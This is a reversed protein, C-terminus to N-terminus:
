GKMLRLPEAFDALPLPLILYGEIRGIDSDYEAFILAFRDPSDPNSTFVGTTADISGSGDLGLSWRAQVESKVRARLQIQGAPLGTDPDPKLTLLVDHRVVLVHAHRPLLAGAGAVSVVDLVFATDTTKSHATYQCHHGDPRLTGADPGPKVLSWSLSGATLGGAALEVTDGPHCTQILPNIALRASLVTVLACSKFGGSGTATVRVRLYGDKVPIDALAPATYIGWADISGASADAKPSVTEVAWSVTGGGASFQRQQGAFLLLEMPSVIFATSAPNVRGFAGVDHPAYLDTDVITQGFSLEICEQIFGDVPVIATALKHLAQRIRPEIDTARGAFYAALAPLVTDVWADIDVGSDQGAAGRTGLPEADVQLDFEVPGIALGGDETEVMTYLANLSVSYRHTISFPPKANNDFVCNTASDAKTNWSVRVTRDAQREIVLGSAPSAVLDMANSLVSAWITDGGAGVPLRAGKQEVRIGGSTFTTKMVAGQADKVWTCAADKGLFDTVLSVVSETVPVIQRAKAAALLVAASCHEVDDPILSPYDAGPMGGPASGAMQIFVMVADREPDAGSTQNSQGAIRFSQPRMLPNSGEGISGLPYVRQADPLRNFLEQFFDGGLRQEEESTAFTLRFNDSLSLDLSIRGDGTVTGPLRDLDLDLFLRPGQLPGLWHVSTPRWTDAAKEMTIQAGGMVPMTLLARVSEKGSSTATEFSLRPADLVFDHIYERWKDPILDIHGNIAPLCSDTRIRSIHHQMLLTNTKSLALAAVADWGWMVNSAPEKMWALIQQLSRSAM